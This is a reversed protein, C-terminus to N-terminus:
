ELIQTFELAKAVPDPSKLTTDNCNEIDTLIIQSTKATAIKSRNFYRFLGAYFICYVVSIGFILILATKPKRFSMMMSQLIPKELLM